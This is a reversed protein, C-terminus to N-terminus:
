DKKPTMHYSYASDLVGYELIANNGSSVSLLDTDVENDDSIEEVVSASELPKKGNNKEELLMWM